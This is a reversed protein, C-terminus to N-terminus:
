GHRDSGSFPRAQTGISTGASDDSVSPAVGIADPRQAASAQEKSYCVGSIGEAEENPDDARCVGHPLACAWQTMDGGDCRIAYVTIPYADDTKAQMFHLGITCIRRRKDICITEHSALGAHRFKGQATDCWDDHSDFDFLWPGLDVNM